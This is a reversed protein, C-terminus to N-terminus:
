YRAFNLMAQHKGMAYNGAHGTKKGIQREYDTVDEWSKDLCVAATKTHKDDKCGHKNRQFNTREMDALVEWNKALVQVVRDEAGSYDWEMFVYGPDAVFMSRIDLGDIGVDLNVDDHKSMTQLALGFQSISDPPKVVSTSTRGSETGVIRYRTFARM